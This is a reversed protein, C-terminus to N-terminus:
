PAPAEQAQASLERELADLARAVTHQQAFGAKEKAELSEGLRKMRALDDKFCTAKSLELTTDTPM